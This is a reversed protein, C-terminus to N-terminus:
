KDIKKIYIEIESDSFWKKPLEKEFKFIKEDNYKLYQNNFVLKQFRNDSLKLDIQLKFNESEKLLNNFYNLIAQSQNDVHNQVVLFELSKENYTDILDKPLAIISGITSQLLQAIIQALPKKFIWIVSIILGYQIVINWFEFDIFWRFLQEAM